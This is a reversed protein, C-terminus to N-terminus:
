VVLRLSDERREFVNRQNGLAPAFGRKGATRTPFIESAPALSELTEATLPKAPGGWSGGSTPRRNQPHRIGRVRLM